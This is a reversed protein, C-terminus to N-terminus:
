LPSTWRCNPYLTCGVFFNHDQSNERVVTPSKCRPCKRKDPPPQPYPPAQPPKAGEEACMACVNASPMAELRPIVIPLGCCHCPTVNLPDILLRGSGDHIESIKGDCEVCRTKGHLQAINKLSIEEDLYVALDVSQLMKAHHCNVCVFYLEKMGAGLSSVTSICCGASFM